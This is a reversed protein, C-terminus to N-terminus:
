FESNINLSLTLEKSFFMGGSCHCTRLLVCGERQAVRPLPTLTLTSKFEQVYCTRFSHYSGIVYSFYSTTPKTKPSWYPQSVSAPKTCFTLISLSFHPVSPVLSVDKEHKRYTWFFNIDKWTTSQFYNLSMKNFHIKQINWFVDKYSTRHLCKVCM